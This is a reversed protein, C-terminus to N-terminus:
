LKDYNVRACSNKIVEKVVSYKVSKVMDEFAESSEMKFEVVPDVQRYARLKIGEKLHEMNDIHDVWKEDVVSLLIGREFNKFEENIKDQKEVEEDDNLTQEVVFSEELSKYMDMITENFIKQVKDVDEYILIELDIEEKEIGLGRAFVILDRMNSEYIEEYDDNEGINAELHNKVMDKSVFEVMDKIYQSVDGNDLVFNREDYIVLRQKNIVDDFGILNKRTEFSNGEVNKQANEVIKSVLRREIPTDEPLEMRGFLSNFRDAEYVKFLDDQLSLYFRSSGVDGQRGSRGRLQNDIRRAEHRDTGIVRLGGLTVVEPDLKIDTGRGAMNTAITIAGFQGAKEVISAEKEHNKANLVYHKIGRRKLLYSIDESKQINSTGVLIPQGKKNCSVIDEIIANYKSTLTKYVFDLEDVRAVPKNTPIAIVDLGYIEQFELDETIATGSMGSLKTYMRFYNQLTITALTKSEKQIKVGEKAEIAQHLGESFRRGEMVRGTFGDVIFIEGKKSIYDKNLEMTYNAKLAQAIHHQIDRNEMDSYNEINFKKELLEIGADTLVASRGGRDIEYDVNKKLSKVFKDAIVYLETSKEGEGSIILPTRAEDILISDIEDVICYELGRQVRKEKKVAMNDRLYDFGFESNTGYVIDCNYQQRREDPKMEHLIVGVTLGLFEHVRGMEDRDRKALYDNTTIIHVPEGTLANLYSSLTAVLTKGEGTKMEAIRGQHLIVGGILQVRYHKMSLVRSSAERVVAFAEPLLNDLSEGIGLREKFEITKEKLEIDSFSKLEDHFSEIKDVIKYVSKLERESYTGLIDLIGVMAIGDKLKKSNLTM